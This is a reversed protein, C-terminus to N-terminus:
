TLLVIALGQGLGYVRGAALEGVAGLAGTEVGQLALEVGELAGKAAAIQVQILQETGELLGQGIALAFPNAFQEIGARSPSRGIFFPLRLTATKTPGSGM